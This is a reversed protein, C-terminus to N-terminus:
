KWSVLVRIRMLGPIYFQEVHVDENYWISKASKRETAPLISKPQGLLNNILEINRKVRWNFEEETAQETGQWEYEILRVVSDPLSYFYNVRHTFNSDSRSYIVPQGLKFQQRNPFYDNSVGISYGPVIPDAKDTGQILGIEKVTTKSLHFNQAFSFIPSFFLLFLLRIRM